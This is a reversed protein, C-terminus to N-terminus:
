LDKQDRHAPNLTFKKPPSMRSEWDSAARKLPGLALTDLQLSDTNMDVDLRRTRSLFLKAYAAAAAAAYEQWMNNKHSDAYDCIGRIVLCGCTKMVGAAEMEVCIIPYAKHLRDRLRADKVVQNGSAIMGYFVRPSDGLRPLREVQPGDCSDCSDQKHRHAYSAVFLKDQHPAPRRYEPRPGGIVEIYEQLQGLSLNPDSRMESIATRLLPPPPQVQGTTKFLSNQVAKGFDYQIVGTSVALDGLRIDNDASPVGGGIGVVLCFKIAPFSRIMHAAVSAATNTGIDDSPLCAAVVNHGAMRGLAYHNSDQDVIQLMPHTSDLLARVALLEKHLACVIGVHYDEHSLTMSSGESLMRRLSAVSQGTTYLSRDSESVIKQLPVESRAASSYLSTGIGSDTFESDAEDSSSVPEEHTPDGTDGWFWNYDANHGFVVAGQEKCLVSQSPSLMRSFHSPLLVQALNAHKAPRGDCPCPDFAKNLHHWILHDTLRMPCARPSGFRDMIKYMDAISAALYFKRRPLTTWYECLGRSNAPQIIEGFGSGFLTVAHIARTFDVWGKGMSRLKCVRPYLPDENTALDKFDWGELYKRPAARLNEGNRGAMNVQHDIIKELLNYLREVRDQLRVHGGSNNLVDPSETTRTHDSTQEERGRYIDLKLNVPNLLVAMASSATYPRSAEILDESRFVFASELEDTKNFELSARLLHLLASSGNILWGRQYDVDWLVVYKKSIWSLKAMYGAQVIRLPRDKHGVTYPNPSTILRGGTVQIQELKCGPHPGQLGSRGVAYEANKSGANYRIESCWGLVHRVNELDSLQLGEAHAIDSDLYSIRDGDKYLLHWTLLGESLRTPILLTSFGKIFLKNDFMDVLQTDALGAMVDLPIELGTGSQSRRPIPYGEVIVPKRFLDHWCQGNSRHDDLRHMQFDIECLFTRTQSLTQNVRLNKIYPACGAVGDEYPSSRLAAGLWALQEAVEAVSNATGVAEVVLESGHIEATLRTQDPLKGSSQRAVGQLVNKVLQLLQKGSSPWTQAMYQICTLAQADCASGTLTIVTEVVEEPRRRYEQEQCFAVIDCAVRCTMQYAEASKKKSVKRSTPLFHLIQQGINKMVDPEAPELKLDRRLSSLLWEYAPASLIFDRYASLEQTIEGEDDDDDDDQEVVEGLESLALEDLLHEVSEDVSDLLVEDQPEEWKQFWLDVADAFTWQDTEDVRPGPITEERQYYRRGVYEVIDSMVDRHMQSPANYGVKLAFTKLLEPLIELVRQMGLADIHESLVGNVLEDALDLKYSEKVQTPLNSDTSYVTGADDWEEHQQEPAAIEAVAEPSPYRPPGSNSPTTETGQAVQINQFKEHTLSAYGSNTSPHPVMMEVPHSPPVDEVNKEVKRVKEDGFSKASSRSRDRTRALIIDMEPVEIKGEKTQVRKSKIYVVEWFADGTEQRNAIRIVEKFMRRLRSPMCIMQELVPGDGGRGRRVKREIENVSAYIPEKVCSSWDDGRKLLRYYLYDQPTSITDASRIHTLSAYGSDTSPHPVMMEVPHSPPVDEVNKQGETTTIDSTLDATSTKAQPNGEDISSPIDQDRSALFDKTAKRTSVQPTAWQYTEAEAVEAEMPDRPPSYRRSPSYFQPNSSSTEAAFGNKVSKMKTNELSWPDEDAFREEATQNVLFGFDWTKGWPGFGGSQLSTSDGAFSSELKPANEDLVIDEFSTTAGPVTSTAEAWNKKKNRKSAFTWEDDADAANTEDALSLPDSDAKPAEGEEKDREEEERQKKKKKASTGLFWDDWEDRGDGGDGGDGDGGAGGGGSAGDGGGGAGEDGNGATKGDDEDGSAYGKFVPAASAKKEKGRTQVGSTDGFDISISIDGVARQDRPVPVSAPPAPAFAPIYLCKEAQADTEIYPPPTTEATYPPPPDRYPDPVLLLTLTESLEVVLAAATLSIEDHSFLLSIQDKTDTENRCRLQSKHSGIGGGDLPWSLSQLMLGSKSRAPTHPFGFTIERYAQTTNAVATATM